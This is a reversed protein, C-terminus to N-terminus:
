LAPRRREQCAEYSPTGKDIVACMELLLKRGGEYVLLTIAMEEDRSSSPLLAGTNQIRGNWSALEQIKNRDGGPETTAKELIPALAETLELIVPVAERIECYLAMVDEHCDAADTAKNALAHIEHLLDASCVDVAQQIAALNHLRM